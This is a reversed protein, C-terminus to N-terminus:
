KMATNACTHSAGAQQQLQQAGAPLPEGLEDSLRKIEAKVAALRQERWQLLKRLLEGDADVSRDPALKTAADTALMSDHLQVLRALEQRTEDASGAYPLM